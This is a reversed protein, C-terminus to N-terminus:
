GSTVAGGQRTGSERQSSKHLVDLATMVVREDRDLEDLWVTPAIGTDIALAIIRRIM